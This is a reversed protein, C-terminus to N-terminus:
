QESELGEMSLEVTEGMSAGISAGEDDDSVENDGVFLELLAGVVRRGVETGDVGREMEGEEAGTGDGDLCGLEDGLGDLLYLGLTGGDVEVFGLSDGVKNRFSDTSLVVDGDSKGLLLLTDGDNLGVPTRTSSGFGPLVSFFGEEDLRLDM